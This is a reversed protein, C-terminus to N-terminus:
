SRMSTVRINIDIHVIDRKGRTAGPLVVLHGNKLLIRDNVRRTPVDYWFHITMLANSPSIASKDMQLASISSLCEVHQVPLHIHFGTLKEITNPLLYFCSMWPGANTLWM